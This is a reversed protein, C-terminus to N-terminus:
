IREWIVEFLIKFTQALLKNTLITGFIPENLTILAINDGWILIDTPQDAYKDPLLKVDYLSKIITKAKEAPAKSRATLLDYFIIKRNKIEEFYYNLFDPMLASLKNTSGIAMIKEADLSQRYIEKIQEAGEYFRIKPKNKQITYLGRLDPLIRQIVEKKQEVARLLSEPDNALYAKRKGHTQEEALGKTKLEMLINYCNTRAINTGRSVIPPTSLGNELLFLYVTIESGNLGIQKLQSHIDM